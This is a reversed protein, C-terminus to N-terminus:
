VNLASGRRNVAMVKTSQEPLNPALTEISSLFVRLRRRITHVEVSAAAGAPPAGDTAEAWQKKRLEAALTVQETILIRLLVELWESYMLERAGSAQSAELDSQASAFAIRVDRMTLLAPMKYGKDEVPEPEPEAAGHNHGKAHGHGHGHQGHGHQGHGHQGHGHGHGHEEHHVSDDVIEGPKWISAIMEWLRELSMTMKVATKDGQKHPSVTIPNLGGARVPTQLPLKPPTLPTLPPGAKRPSDTRPSSQEMSFHRYVKVLSAMTDQFACQVHPDGLAAVLLDELRHIEPPINDTFEQLTKELASDEPEEKYKTSALLLMLEMFEALGFETEHMVTRVRRDIIEKRKRKDQEQIPEKFRVRLMTEKVVDRTPTGGIHFKCEELVHCIEQFSLVSSSGDDGYGCYHKFVCLVTPFYREMQLKCKEHQEEEPLVRMLDMQEFAASCVADVEGDVEEKTMLNFINRFLMQGEMIYIFQAAKRKTTLMEVRKQNPDPEFKPGPMKFGPMAGFEPAEPEMPPVSLAPLKGSRQKMQAEDTLFWKNTGNNTDRMKLEPESNMHALQHYQSFAPCGQSNVEMKPQWAGAAGRGAWPAMMEIVVTDGDGFVQNILLNPDMIVGKENRVAGPIMFGGQVRAKERRRRAGHPKQAQPRQSAIIGLWKIRQTGAECNIVFKQQSNEIVINLRINNIRRKEPALSGGLVPMTGIRSGQTEM